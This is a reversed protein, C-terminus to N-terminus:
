KEQATQINLLTGGYLYFIAKALMKNQTGSSLEEVQSGSYVGDKPWGEAGQLCYANRTVTDGESNKYTVEFKRTFNDAWDYECLSGPPYYKNVTNM